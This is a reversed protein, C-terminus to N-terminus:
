ARAVREEVLTFGRQSLAAVFREPDVASELRHAGPSV